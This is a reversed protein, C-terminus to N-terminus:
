TRRGLSIEPSSRTVSVTTAVDGRDARGRPPTSVHVDRRQRQMSLKKTEGLNHLLTLTSVRECRKSLSQGGLPFTVLLLNPPSSEFEEAVFSPSGRVQSLAPNETTDDFGDLEGVVIKDIPRVAISVAPPRM